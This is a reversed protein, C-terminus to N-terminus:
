HQKAYTELLNNLSDLYDKLAKHSVGKKNNLLLNSPIEDIYKVLEPFDKQIKVTAIFINESLHDQHLMKISNNIIGKRLTRM